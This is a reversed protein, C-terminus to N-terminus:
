KKWSATLNPKREFCIEVARRRDKIKKRTWKLLVLHVMADKGGEGEHLQMSFSSYRHGKATTTDTLDPLGWVRHCM